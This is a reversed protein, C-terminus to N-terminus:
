DREYPVLIIHTIINHEHIVLLYSYWACLVIPVIIAGEEHSM